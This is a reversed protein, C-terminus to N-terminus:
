LFFELTGIAWVTFQQLLEKRKWDETSKKLLGRATAEPGPSPPQANWGQGNGFRASARSLSLESM